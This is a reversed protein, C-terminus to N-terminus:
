NKGHKKVRYYTGLPYTEKVVIGRLVLGELIEKVIYFNWGMKAVIESPTFSGNENISISNLVELIRKERRLKTDKKM